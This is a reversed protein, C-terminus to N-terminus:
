AVPGSLRWPISSAEYVFYILISINRLYFERPFRKANPLKEYPSPSVLKRGSAKM